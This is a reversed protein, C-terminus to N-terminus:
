FKFEFFKFKLFFKFNFFIFFSFRFFSFFILIEVWMRMLWPTLSKGWCSTTPWKNSSKTNSMNPRNNSMKCKNSRRHSAPASFNTWPCVRWHSPCSSSSNASHQTRLLFISIKQLKPFISFLNFIKCFCNILWLIWFNM